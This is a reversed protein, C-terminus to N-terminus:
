LDFDSDLLGKSALTTQLMEIDTSIDLLEGEHLSELMNESAETVSDILSILQKKIDQAQKELYNPEADIVPRDPDPAPKDEGYKGLDAIKENYADTLRVVEPYFQERFDKVQSGLEPEEEVRQDIKKSITRLAKLKDKIEPDDTMIILDEIAEPVKGKERAAKRKAKKNAEASKEPSEIPVGNRTMVLLRNDLDVYAEEFFGDVIMKQLDDAVKEVPKGVAAALEDLSTNGNKNVRAEYARIRKGKGNNFLKLAVAVVGLVAAVALYEIALQPNDVSGGAAMAFMVAGIASAVAGPSKGLRMKNLKKENKRVTYSKTQTKYDQRPATRTNNSGRSRSATQQGGSRNQATQRGQGAGRSPSSTPRSYVEGKKSGSTEPMGGTGFLEGFVGGSGDAGSLADGLGRIAEGMTDMPDVAKQVPSAEFEVSSAAMVFSISRVDAPIDLVSKFNKKEGPAWRGANIRATGLEKGDAKNVVKLRFSFRSFDYGSNNVASFSYSVKGDEQRKTKTTSKATDRFDSEFWALVDRRMESDSAYSAAM